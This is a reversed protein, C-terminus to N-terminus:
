SPRGAILPSSYCMILVEQSPSFAEYHTPQSSGSYDYYPYPSYAPTSADSAHMHHMPEHLSPTGPNSMKEKKRRGSPNKQKRENGSNEHSMQMEGQNDVHSHGLGGHMGHPPLYKDFNALAESPPLNFSNSIDMLKKMYHVVETIEFCRM